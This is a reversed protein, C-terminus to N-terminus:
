PNISFVCFRKKKKDMKLIHSDCTKKYKQVLNICIKHCVTKESHSSHRRVNLYGIDVGIDVRNEAISGTKIGLTDLDHNKGFQADGAIGTTIQKM